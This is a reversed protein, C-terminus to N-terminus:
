NTMTTRRVPILRRRLRDPRFGPGTPTPESRGGSPQHRPGVRGRGAAPRQENV